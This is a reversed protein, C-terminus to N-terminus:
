FQFGKFGKKEISMASKAIFIRSNKYDIFFNGLFLNAVKVAIKYSVNKQLGYASVFTQSALM